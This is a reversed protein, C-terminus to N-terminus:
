RLQRSGLLVSLVNRSPPAAGPYHSVFKRSKQGKKLTGQFSHDAGELPPGPHFVKEPCLFCREELSELDCCQTKPFHGGDGVRRGEAAEPPSNTKRNCVFFVVFWWRPRSKKKLDCQGLYFKCVIFHVWKLRINQYPNPNKKETKLETSKKCSGGGVYGSALQVFSPWVIEM